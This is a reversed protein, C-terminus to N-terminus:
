NRLYSRSLNDLFSERKKGIESISKKFQAIDTDKFGSSAINLCDMTVKTLQHLDEYLEKEGLIRLKAEAHKIKELTQEFETENESIATELFKPIEQNGIKLEQRKSVRLLLFMAKDSFIEVQEVVDELLERRRKRREKSIENKHNISTIWYTAFGSIMAGFGIKVATDVIEIWTTM